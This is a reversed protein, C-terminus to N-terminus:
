IPKLNFTISGKGTETGGTLVWGLVDGTAVTVAATDGTMEMPYNLRAASQMDFSGSNLAVGSAMGSTGSAAKYFVLAAASAASIEPRCVISDVMWKRTAYMAGMTITVPTYVFAVPITLDTTANSTGVQINATKVVDIHSDSNAIMAKSATLTGATVTHLVDVEALTLASTGMAVYASVAGPDPFTIVGSQGQLAVNLTTTDNNTNDAKAFRLKGKAGTAPFLDITGVSGSAGVDLNTITASTATIDTFVEGSSVGGLRVYNGDVLCVYLVGDGALQSVGTATAVSDITDPTPAFVQMAQAADSNKVFHVQGVRAPPLAIADAATAVVTVDHYSAAPNLPTADAQVGSAKATIATDLKTPLMRDLMGHLAAVIRKDNVQNAYQRIAISM